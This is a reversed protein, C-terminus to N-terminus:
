IQFINKYLYNKKNLFKSTEIWLDLIIMWSKQTLTLFHIFHVYEFANTSKQHFKPELINKNNIM